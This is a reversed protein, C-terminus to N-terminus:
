CARMGPARRSAKTSSRNSPPALCCRDAPEICCWSVFAEPCGQQRVKMYASLRCMHMGGTHHATQQLRRSVARHTWFSTPSYLCSNEVCSCFGGQEGAVHRRGGHHHHWDPDLHRGLLLEVQFCPYAPPVRPFINLTNPESLCPGCLLRLAAPDWTPVSFLMAECKVMSYDANTLM